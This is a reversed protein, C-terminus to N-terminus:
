ENSEGNSEVIPAEDSAYDATGTVFKAEDNVDGAAWRNQWPNSDSNRTFDYPFECATMNKLDLLNIESSMGSSLLYCEGGQPSTAEESWFVDEAILEGDITYLDYDPNGSDVLKFTQGDLSTFGVIGTEEPNELEVSWKGAVYDYLGIRKDMGKRLEIGITRDDSNLEFEASDYELDTALASSTFLVNGEFDRVVMEDGNQYDDYLYHSGKIEVNSIGYELGTQQAVDDDTLLVAGTSDIIGSSTQWHPSAVGYSSLSYTESSQYVIQFNEDILYDAHERVDGSRYEVELALAGDKFQIRFDGGTSGNSYGLGKIYAIKMNPKALLENLNCLVNGEHDILQVVPELDDWQEWSEDYSGQTAKVAVMGDAYAGAYSWGYKIDDDFVPEDNEFYNLSYVKEDSSVVPYNGANEDIKEVVPEEEVAEVEEAPPETDTKPSSCAALTMGLAVVVGFAGLKRVFSLLAQKRM